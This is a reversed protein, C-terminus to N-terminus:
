SSVDNTFTNQDIEFKLRENKVHLIIELKPKEKTKGKTSLLILISIYGTKLM